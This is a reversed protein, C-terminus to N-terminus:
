EERCNKCVGRLQVHFDAVEFGFASTDPITLLDLNEDDFDVVSDLVAELITNRQDTCPVGADRCIRETEKLRSQKESHDM